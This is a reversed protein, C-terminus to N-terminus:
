VKYLRSSNGLSQTGTVFGVGMPADQPQMMGMMGQNAQAVQFAEGDNQNM